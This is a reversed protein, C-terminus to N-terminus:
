VYRPTADLIDQLNQKAAEFLQKVEPYACADYLPRFEADTKALYSEGWALLDPQAGIENLNDARDLLKVALARPDNLLGQYYRAKLDPKLADPTTDPWWKTLRTVISLVAPPVGKARLDQFTLSTDEVVDHLYAAAVAEYGLECAAAAAGVRLPHNVYPANSGKRFQDSHAEAAIRAALSVVQLELM